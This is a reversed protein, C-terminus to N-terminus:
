CRGYRQIRAERLHRTAAWYRNYATVYRNRIAQFDKEIQTPERPPVQGLLEQMSRQPDIEAVVRNYAPLAAVFAAKAKRHARAVSLIQRFTTM